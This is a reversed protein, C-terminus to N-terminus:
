GAAKELSEYRMQVLDLKQEPKAIDPQYGLRNEVEQQLADQAGPEGHVLVVKPQKKFHQLWGILEEQDAHASFGGVTHVTAGVNVTEGWLKVTEAGEVLQRGLTGKAQFGVMLVKTNRKWLQYKFHHRIRGGECMGSGAIIIAGSAIRNLAMSEEPTKTLRLNSLSNLAQHNLVRQKAEKNYLECHNLYVETAEIAMPSDLFIQWRGLNWEDFYESFLYLLEQTRGVAFSPILINGKSQAAENLIQGMEEMSEQWPRHCRGGYTSEMLVVDAHHIPTPDRLIPAESHGLDGTFVVKRQHKGEELWLEVISSGIIHGADKFRIRIGPLIEDEVDYDMPHFHQLAKEADDATYLPEVPPLHKRARKRNITRTDHDYINAADRFMIGCMERCVKQTYVPGKFGRKVLLPIRGCHDLHSHSLVVADIRKPDFPFPEANRQEGYKGGQILGCDLLIRYHGVQILHCSGTVEQAAGHFEIHM